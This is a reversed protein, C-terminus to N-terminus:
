LGVTLIRNRDNLNLFMYLSIHGGSMIVILGRILRGFNVSIHQVIQCKSFFIREKTIKPSQVFHSM